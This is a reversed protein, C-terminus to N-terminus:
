FYESYYGNNGVCSSINSYLIKIWNIFGPGFNFKELAKFLFKWEITDFAKQFDILVIHGPIKYKNTYTM